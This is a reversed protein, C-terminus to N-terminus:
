NIQLSKDSAKDKIKMDILQLFITALLEVAEQNQGHDNQKIM